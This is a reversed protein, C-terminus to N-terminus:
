FEVTMKHAEFSTILILKTGNIITYFTITTNFRIDKSRKLQKAIQFSNLNVAPIGSVKYVGPHFPCKFPPDVLNQLSSFWQKIYSSRIGKRNKQCVNIRENIAVINFPLVKM